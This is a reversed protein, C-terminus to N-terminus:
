GAWARMAWRRVPMSACSPTTLDQVAMIKLFGSGSCAWRALKRMCPRFDGAEDWDDGHPAIERAIFREVSDRFAKREPTDFPRAVPDSVPM